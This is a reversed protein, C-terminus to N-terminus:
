NLQICKKRHQRRRRHDGKREAGVVRRQLHWTMVARKALSSVVLSTHSVVCCASVTAQWRRQHARLCGTVLAHKAAALVRLELSNLLAAFAGHRGCKQAGNGRSVRGKPGLYVQRPTRAPLRSPPLVSHSRGQGLRKQPSPCSCSCNRM